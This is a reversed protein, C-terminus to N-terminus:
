IEAQAAKSRACALMAESVDVAHVIAGRKAAEIVFTGTGCGIDVLVQGSQVELLDLAQRSEARIDRFDAHSSDYVDVESQQGYDRGVQRFEDLHWAPLPTKM